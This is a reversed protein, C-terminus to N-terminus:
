KRAKREPMEELTYIEKIASKPIRMIACVTPDGHDIDPCLNPALAISQENDMILFGVSHILVTEMVAVHSHFESVTQWKDMSESDDWIAYVLLHRINDSM